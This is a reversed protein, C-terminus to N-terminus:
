LHFLFRRKKFFFFYFSKQEQHQAAFRALGRQRPKGSKGATGAGSELFPGTTFCGVARSVSAM